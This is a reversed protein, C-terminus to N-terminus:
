DFQEDQTIASCIEIAGEHLKGLRPPIAEELGGPAFSTETVKTLVRLRAELDIDIGSAVGSRRVLV